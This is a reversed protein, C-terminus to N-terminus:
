EKENINRGKILERNSDFEYIVKEKKIKIEKIKKNKNENRNYINYLGNQKFHNERTTEAIDEKGNNNEKNNDSKSHAFARKLLNLGFHLKSKYYIELLNMHEYNLSIDDYENKTILVKELLTDLFHKIGEKKTIPNNREYDNFFNYFYDEYLEEAKIDSENIEILDISFIKDYPFLFLISFIILNINIWFNSNFVDELFLFDGLSVKFLNIIFYNSYVEYIRSNLNIPKKYMKIFNYKELFFTFIFGFFCIPIGLPFIPLYFFSMLLTRTIYSYKSAIDMDLLEYLNNLEKQPLCKRKKKIIYKRIKKIIFEFNISWTVPIIFSNSIFMTFCNTILIDHNLQKNYYNSSLFPIIASSLFTFITLKISYSLLYNTMCIQKEINTLFVFIKQFISNIVAIIISILSSVTYRQIISENGSQSKKIQYNNLFLIFFFCLAILIFSIFYALLVRLLRKDWSFELNEYIIDEPEPAEEISINYKLFYEKKKSHKICCSCLYYKLNTVSNILTIIKNKKHTNLFIDKEKM